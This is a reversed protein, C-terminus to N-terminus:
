VSCSELEQRSRWGENCRHRFRPTVGTDLVRRENTREPRSGYRSLNKSPISLLAIPGLPLLRSRAPLTVTARGWAAWM